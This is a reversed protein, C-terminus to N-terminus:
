SFNKMQKVQDKQLCLTGNGYHLMLSLPMAKLSMPHCERRCLKQLCRSIDETSHMSLLARLTDYSKFTIWDQQRLPIRRGTMWFIAIKANSMLHMQDVGYKPMAGDLVTNVAVSKNTIGDNTLLGFLIVSFIQDNPKANSGDGQMQDLLEYFYNDRMENELEYFRRFFRKWTIQTLNLGLAANHKITVYMQRIMEQQSATDHSWSIADRINEVWQSLIRNWKRQGCEILPNPASPREALKGFLADYHQMMKGNEIRDIYRLRSVIVGVTILGEARHITSLFNDDASKPDSGGDVNLVQLSRLIEYTKINFTVNHRPMVENLTYRLVDLWQYNVLDVLIHNFKDINIDLLIVNPHSAILLIVGCKSLNATNVQHPSLHLEVDCRIRQLILSIGKAPNTTGGHCLIGELIQNMLLVDPNVRSGYGEMQDLMMLIHDDAYQSSQAYYRAFFVRWAQICLNSGIIQNYRILAHMLRVLSIQDGNHTCILSATRLSEMFVDEQNSCRRHIETGEIGEHIQFVFVSIILSCRWLSPM